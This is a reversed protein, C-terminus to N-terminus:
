SFHHELLRLLGIGDNTYDSDHILEREGLANHIEDVVNEIERPDYEHFPKQKLIRLAAELHRKANNLITIRDSENPLCNSSM